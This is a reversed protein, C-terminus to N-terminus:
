LTVSTETSACFCRKFTRPVQEPAVLLGNNCTRKRTTFADPMIPLASNLAIRSDCLVAPQPM